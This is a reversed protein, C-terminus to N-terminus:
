FVSELVFSSFSNNHRVVVHTGEHFIEDKIGHLRCLVLDACIRRISFQYKGAINSLVTVVM